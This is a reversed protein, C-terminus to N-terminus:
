PPRATKPSSCVLSTAKPEDFGVSALRDRQEATEVGEATSILGFGKAIAAVANIIADSGSRAEPGSVFAQFLKIKDIPFASLYSLSSYGTGFDDIAILAGM